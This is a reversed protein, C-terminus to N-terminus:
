IKLARNKQKWLAQALFANESQLKGSEMAKTNIPYSKISDWIALTGEESLTMAGLLEKAEDKHESFEPIVFVSGGADSGGTSGAVEPWQACAWLGEQGAAYTPFSLIRHWGPLM